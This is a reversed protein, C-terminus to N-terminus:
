RPRPAAFRYAPLKVNWALRGKEMLRIILYVIDLQWWSLGHRASTPFAHHNNHWGEGFTLLACVFNNKSDDKTDYPASGFLHCVSNIAWTTQHVFFIRIFGGWLMGTVLGGINGAGLAGFLGPVIIGLFVWLPYLRAIRFTKQDRVLDASRRFYNEPKHTLM